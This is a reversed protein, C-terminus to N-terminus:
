GHPVEVVRLPLPGGGYLIRIISFAPIAVIWTKIHFQDINSNASDM